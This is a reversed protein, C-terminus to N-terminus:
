FLTVEVVCKGGNVIIHIKGINCCDEELWRSDVIREPSANGTTLFSTSPLPSTNHQSQDFKITNGERVVAGPIFSYVIHLM